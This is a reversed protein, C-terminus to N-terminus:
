GKQSGHRCMTESNHVSKERGEPTWMVLTKSYM